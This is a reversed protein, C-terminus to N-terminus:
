LIKDGVEVVKDKVFGAPVELAYMAPELSSYSPCNPRRAEPDEPILCPEMNEVFSVVEKDKNFFIIDLPIKTNKMWFKRQAEENFVFWMARGEELEEREMLGRSREEEDDAVEVKLTIKESGTDLTIEQEPLKGIVKRALDSVYDVLKCGSLLLIIAPLILVLRKM